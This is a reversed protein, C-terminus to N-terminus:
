LKYKKSPKFYAGQPPPDYVKVPKRYVNSMLAELNRAGELRANAVTGNEYLARKSRAKVRAKVRNWEQPTAEAWRNYWRLDRSDVPQWSDKDTAEFVEIVEPPLVIKVTDGEADVQLNELDFSIRGRQKQIAFFVKPYITDCVPVENYFDIACLQVMTEIGAIRGKDVSIDDNEKPLLAKVVFIAAMVVLCLVATKLLIGTFLKNKRTNNETM